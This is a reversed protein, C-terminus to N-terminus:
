PTDHPEAIEVPLAARRDPCAALLALAAERQQGCDEEPLSDLPM